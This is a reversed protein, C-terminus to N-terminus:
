GEDTDADANEKALAQQDEATWNKSATKQSDEPDPLIEGQGHKTLGM